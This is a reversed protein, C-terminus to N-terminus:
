RGDDHRQACSGMSGAGGGLAGAAPGPAEGRRNREVRGLWPARAPWQPAGRGPRAAGCTGTGWGCRVLRSRPRGPVGQPLRRRSEVSAWSARASSPQGCRLGCGAARLECDAAAARSPWSRGLPLLLLQPTRGAGRASRRRRREGAAAAGRGRRRRRRGSGAGAPSGSPSGPSPLPRRRERTGGSPPLLCEVRRRPDWAAEGRTREKRLLSLGGGVSGFGRGGLHIVTQYPFVLSRVNPSM